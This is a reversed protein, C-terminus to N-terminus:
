GKTDRSIKEIIGAAVEKTNEESLSLRTSYDSDERFLSCHRDNDPHLFWLRGAELGQELKKRIIKGEKECAKSSDYWKDDLIIFYDCEQYLSLTADLAGNGDFRNRSSPNQDFLIASESYESNLLEVISQLQEVAPRMGDLIKDHAYSVGILYRNRKCNGLFKCIKKVTDDADNIQCSHELEGCPMQPNETGWQRFADESNFLAYTNRYHNRKLGTCFEDLSLSSKVADWDLFLLVPEGEPSEAALDDGWRLVRYPIRLEKLKQTIHEFVHGVQDIRKDYLIRLVMNDSTGTTNSAVFEVSPQQNLATDYNQLFPRLIQLGPTRFAGRTDKLMSLLINANSDDLAVDQAILESFTRFTMAIHISGVLVRGDDSYMEWISGDAACQQIDTLAVEEKLLLINIGTSREQAFYASLKRDQERNGTYIGLTFVTKNEGDGIELKARSDEFFLRLIVNKGYIPPEKAPDELLRARVEETLFIKDLPRLLHDEKTDSDIKHLQEIARRAEDGLPTERLDSQLRDLLLTLSDRLYYDDIRRLLESRQQETIIGQLEELPAEKLFNAPSDYRGSRDCAEGIRLVTKRDIGRVQRNMIIVLDRRMGYNVRTSLAYLSSLAKPAFRSKGTYGGYCRYIAELQYSAVEAMRALDGCVISMFSDFGTAKKIEEIAEGNTWHWLLIARMICEKDETEHKYGNELMYALPSAEWVACKAPRGDREEIMERLKMEVKDMAARAKEPNKEATPLKMQGIRKIEETCCLAYLIDLLYKDSKMDEQTITEPLGGKGPDPTTQWKYEVTKEGELTIETKVKRLGGDFFLKRIKKCTDLSFAYPAMLRGYDSLEYTEEENEEDDEEIKQCLKKNMLEKVVTIMEIPTGGCCNSFSENWAKKLNELTYAEGGMLSLYYPAQEKEGSHLLASEIEETRCNVFSDWYKDADTKTTAFVYSEGMRNTQGLRGARGVFNKYEQSTLQAAPAGGGRHVITDYLIMVDVPMNMGITLTETAVVYCLAGEQKYLKEIFERLAGSLAANHFAISRPLLNEKLISQYEDGEYNDIDELGNSLRKVETLNQQSIFQALRKTKDRGNAFVLIKAKPNDKHIKQLLAKLLIQKAQEVKSEEAYGPVEIKGEDEKKEPSNMDDNEGPTYRMRWTGDMQIVHEKLGVPRDPCSILIPKQESDGRRVTLWKYIYNVKCDCTTLCMIRTGVTNRRPMENRRLIKQISIELKPGRNKSSLMQMEDVILLACDNMMNNSAQALMAFFKEYVIVAVEYDGNVIDGDHDQFDSSSAYVQRTGLPELDEQLSECRERVMAKLPVLVISKKGSKLCDMIAMESVLTKGSSTAGQVIIHRSDTKPDGRWFGKENFAEQQLSTFQFKEMGAQKRLREEMGKLADKSLQYQNIIDDFTHIKKLVNSEMYYRALDTM